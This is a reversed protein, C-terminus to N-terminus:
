QRLGDCNKPQPCEEDDTLNESVTEPLSKTFMDNVTKTLVDDAEESVVEETQYKNALRQFRSTSPIEDDGGSTTYDGSM